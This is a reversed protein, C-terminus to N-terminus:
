CLAHRSLSLSLSSPCQKRSTSECRQGTPMPSWPVKVLEPSMARGCCRLWEAQIAVGDEERWDPWDLGSLPRGAMALMGSLTEWGLVDRWAWSQKHLTEVELLMKTNKWTLFIVYLYLPLPASQNWLRRPDQKSGDLIWFSKLIGWWMLDKFAHM